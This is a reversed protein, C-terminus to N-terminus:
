ARTVSQARPSSETGPSWSQRSALSAMPGRVKALHLLLCRLGPFDLLGLWAPDPFCVLLFPTLQKM